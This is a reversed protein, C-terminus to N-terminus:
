RHKRQRGCLAASGAHSLLCESCIGAAKQQAVQAWGPQLRPGQEPKPQNLHCRPPNLLVVRPASRANSCCCPFPTCPTRLRCKRHWGIFTDPSYCHISFTFVSAPHSGALTRWSCCLPSGFGACASHFVTFPSPFRGSTHLVTWSSPRLEGSVGARHMSALLHNGGKRSLNNRWMISPWWNIEPQDPDASSSGPQM